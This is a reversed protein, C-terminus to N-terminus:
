NKQPYAIEYLAKQRDIAAKNGPHSRNLYAKVFEPDSKLRQIEYSAEEASMKFQSPQGSVPRHESLRRGMEAFAKVIAPNDGILPNALLQQLETGGLERVAKQALQIKEDFAHGFDNKLQAIYRESVESAKNIQAQQQSGIFEKFSNYLGTAAEKNLGLKHATELYWTTEGDEEKIDYGDKTEPRGMKNYYMGMQEPTLDEFRRGIVQQANVYSKVLGELNNFAGLSPHARLDEPLHQRFDFANNNADPAQAVDVTTTPANGEM